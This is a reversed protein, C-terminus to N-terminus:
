SVEIGSEQSRTMGRPIPIKVGGVTEEYSGGCGSTGVTICLLCAALHLCMGLGTRM